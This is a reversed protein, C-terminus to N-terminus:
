NIENWSSITFAATSSHSYTLVAQIKRVDNNSTAVSLINYNSGQATVQVIVNADGIQITEGSFNPDRILRIIAEEAGSQAAYYTGTGQENISSGTINNVLLIIAASTITIALVMFFLLTVLAQGKSNKNYYLKKM